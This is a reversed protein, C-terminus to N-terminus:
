AGGASHANTRGCRRPRWYVTKIGTRYDLRACYGCYTCVWGGSRIRPIWCRIMGRGCLCLM